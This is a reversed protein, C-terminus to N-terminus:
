MESNTRMLSWCRLIIRISECSPSEKDLEADIEKISKTASSRLLKRIKQSKKMKFEKHIESTGMLVFHVWNSRITLLYAGGMIVPVHGSVRYDGPAM